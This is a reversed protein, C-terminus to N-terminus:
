YGEVVSRKAYLDILDKVLTVIAKRTKEKAAEWSKGGLKSLVPIHGEEGSFKELKSLDSVPLTLKDSGHYHLLICDVENGDMKLRRLGVFRGIGYSEHVVVDGRSLADFNPIV